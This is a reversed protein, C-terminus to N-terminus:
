PIAPKRHVRGVKATSRPGEESRTEMSLLRELMRLELSEDRFEVRRVRWSDVSRPSGGNFVSAAVVAVAECDEKVEHEWVRLVVWGADLLRRTQRRDREVNEELKRDWFGSGSRPRV